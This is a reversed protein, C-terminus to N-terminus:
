VYTIYYAMICKVCFKLAIDPRTLVSLYMLSGILQQYPYKQDCNNNVDKELKLNNEMPTSDAGDFHSRWIKRTHTTADIM